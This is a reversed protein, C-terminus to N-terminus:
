RYLHSRYSRETSFTGTSLLTPTLNVLLQAQKSSLFIESGRYRLNQGEVAGQASLEQHLIERVGVNTRGSQSLLAHNRALATLRDDLANAFEDLSASKARTLRAVARITVPMNNVRHQLEHLV